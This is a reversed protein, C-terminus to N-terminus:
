GLVKRFHLYPLLYNWYWKKSKDKQQHTGKNVGDEAETRPPPFELLETNKLASLLMTGNEERWGKEATSPNELWAPATATHHVSINQSSTITVSSQM